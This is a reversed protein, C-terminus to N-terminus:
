QAAAKVCHSHVLYRFLQLVNPIAHLMGRIVYKSTM